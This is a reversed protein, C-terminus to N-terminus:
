LCHKRNGVGKAFNVKNISHGEYIEIYVIMGRFLKSFAEIPLSYLIAILVWFTIKILHQKSLQLISFLFKKKLHFGIFPQNIQSFKM